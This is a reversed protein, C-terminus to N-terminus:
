LRQFHDPLNKESSFKFYMVSNEDLWFLNVASLAPFNNIM